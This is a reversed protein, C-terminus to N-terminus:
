NFKRYMGYSVIILMAILIVNLKKEPTSLQQNVIQTLDSFINQLRCELLYGCIITVTKFLSCILYSVFYILTSFIGRSTRISIPMKNKSSLQKFKSLEQHEEATLVDDLTKTVCSSGQYNINSSMIALGEEAMQGEQIQSDKGIDVEKKEGAYRTQYRLHSNQRDKRKNEKMSTSGMTGTSFNLNVKQQFNESVSRVNDLMVNKTRDILNFTWYNSIDDGEEEDESFHSNHKSEPELDLDNNYHGDLSFVSSGKSIERNQPDNSTKTAGSQTLSSEKENMRYGSDSNNNITNESERINVVHAKDTGKKPKKSSVNSILVSDVARSNRRYMNIGNTNNIHSTKSSLCSERSIQHDNLINEDNSKLGMSYVENTGREKLNRKEEHKFSEQELNGIKNGENIKASPNDNDQINWKENAKSSVVHGKVSNEEKPFSKEEQVKQQKALIDYVPPEEDQLRDLSFAAFTDGVTSFNDQLQEYGLTFQEKWKGFM